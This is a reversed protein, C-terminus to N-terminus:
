EWRPEGYAGVIRSTRLRWDLLKSGQITLALVSGQSEEPGPMEDFVFNGLSYVIPKGRYTESPQRVHPHAGVVFDAGADVALHAMAVQHDTEELQYEIGWHTFVLLFDVQPRVRRIDATMLDPDLWAHGPTSDTAVFNEPGIECYALIGLRTGHLARIVPVHAVHLNAGGGVPLIGYEPLHALMDMFAQKGYDGSHNNAVSVVDFGAAALREFGRPSAEFTFEKPEPRGLTSVVCELNGITLDFGQLYEATYNFPFRDSTSVLMTNVSRGLMIDGTVAVTIPRVDPTPTPAPTQTATPSPTPPATRATPENCAALLGALPAGAALGLGARLLARRTPRLIRPGPADGGDFAPVRRAIGAEGGGEMDLGDGGLSDGGDRPVAGSTEGAMGARTEREDREGRM